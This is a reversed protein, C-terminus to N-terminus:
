LYWQTAYHFGYSRSGIEARGVVRAIVRLLAVVAMMTATGGYLIFFRSFYLTCFKNNKNAELFDTM